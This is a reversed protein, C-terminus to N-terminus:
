NIKILQIEFKLSANGPIVPPFGRAGYGYDPTATIIAKEGLSLDLLGEDWARIVSGVGVQVVFPGRTHGRSSDFIFGNELMGTYEITVRDGIKPYTKNDGPIITQVSVGM